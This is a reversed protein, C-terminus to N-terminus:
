PMIGGILLALGIFFIILTYFLKRVSLGKKGNYAVYMTSVPILSLGILVLAWGFAVTNPQIHLYVVALDIEHWDLDNTYIHLLAIAVAILADGDSDTSNSKISIQSGSSYQAGSVTGNAWIGIGQGTSNFYVWDKMIWDYVYLEGNDDDDNASEGHIYYDFYQLTGTPFTFNLIVSITGAGITWAQFDSTIESWTDTYDGSSSTGYKPTYDGWYALSTQGDWYASTTNYYIEYNFYCVYSPALIDYILEHEITTNFPVWWTTATQDGYGGGYTLNASTFLVEGRQTLTTGIHMINLAENITSLGRLTHNILVVPEVRIFSINDFIDIIPSESGYFPSDNIPVWSGSTNEYVYLASLGEGNEDIPNPWAIIFKPNQANAKQPLNVLILSLVIIFVM